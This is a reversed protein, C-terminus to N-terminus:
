NSAGGSTLYCRAARYGIAQADEVTGWFADSRFKTWAEAETDQGIDTQPEGDSDVIFWLRLPKAPKKKREGSM